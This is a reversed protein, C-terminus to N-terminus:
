CDVIKHVDGVQYLRLRSFNPELDVEEQSDGGVSAKRRSGNSKLSNQSVELVDVDPLFPDKSSSSPM